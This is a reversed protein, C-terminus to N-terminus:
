INFIFWNSVVDNDRAGFTFINTNFDVNELVSTTAQYNGFNSPNTWQPTNENRSLTLVVVEYATRAPVGNDSAM